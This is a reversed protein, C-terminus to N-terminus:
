DKRELRLVMSIGERCAERALASIEDHDETISKVRYDGAYLWDNPKKKIFVPIFEIQESFARAYRIVNPRNGVLITDPIGPNMSQKLCACVVRGDVHPLYSQPDGGLIDSIERRTYSKGKKM